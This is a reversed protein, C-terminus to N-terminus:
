RPDLEVRHETLMDLLYERTIAPHLNHRDYGAVLHERAVASDHWGLRFPAQAGFGGRLCDHVADLNWDFDVAIKATGSGSVVRDEAGVTWTQGPAVDFQPMYFRRGGTDFAWSIGPLDGIPDRTVWGGDLSGWGSLTSALIPNACM